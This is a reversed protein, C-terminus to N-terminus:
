TLRAASQADHGNPGDTGGAAGRAAGVGSVGPDVWVAGAAAVRVPGSPVADTGPQVGGGDAVTVAPARLVAALGAAAGRPPVLAAGAAGALGAGRGARALEAQELVEWYVLNVLDVFVDPVTVGVHSWDQMFCVHVADDRVSVTVLVRAGRAADPSGSLLESGYFHRWVQLDGGSFATMGPPQGVPLGPMASMRTEAQLSRYLRDVEAVSGLAEFDVAPAKASGTWQGFRWRAYEQVTAHRRGDAELCARQHFECAAQVQLRKRTGPRSRPSSYSHLLEGLRKREVAHRRHDAAANPDYLANRTPM